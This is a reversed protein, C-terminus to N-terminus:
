KEKISHLTRKHRCLIRIGETILKNTVNEMKNYVLPFSNQLNLLSIHLFINFKSSVNEQNDVEKWNENQRASQLITNKKEEHIQRFAYKYKKQMM